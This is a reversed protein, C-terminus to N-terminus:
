AEPNTNNYEAILTRLRNAIELLKWQGNDGLMSDMCYHTEDYNNILTIAAEITALDAKWLNVVSTLLPDHVQVIPPCYIPSADPEYGEGTIDLTECHLPTTFGDGEMNGGCTKCQM